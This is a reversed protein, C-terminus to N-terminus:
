GKLVKQFPMLMFKTLNQRMNKKVSPIKTLMIMFFNRLRVKYRKQPFDYFGHKKYYRHDGQFVFRLEGWIDDRFIKMGGIGLFTRPRVHGAAAADALIQGFAYIRDDIAQSSAYEDTLIGALTTRDLESMAQLIERLNHNQMLPGSVLWGFQKGSFLPQHTHSFRRDIFLKWRASLYRDRITGAFIIIDYEQIMEYTKEVDDTNGYMCQNDFGCKICGTCGGNIKIKSIDVIDAALLMRCHEVMKGINQTLDASDTVIVAKKENLGIPTAKGPLYEIMASTVPAYYKITTIQKEIASFFSNAFFLLNKRINEQLLDDMHASFAEVYNMGLDDCVAQIYNLATNDFFHISTAISIAYKDRFVDQKGREWILEIFRKYNAHVLYIYLPFGWVVGDSNQITAMVEDFYAADNELKKISQAANVYTFSHQPYKQEIYKVYQMTVSNDGKPSGNLVIIRM